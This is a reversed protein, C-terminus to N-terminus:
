ASINLLEESPMSFEDTSYMAEVREEVTAVHSEASHHSGCVACNGATKRLEQSSGDDEKDTVEGNKAVTLSETEANEVTERALEARAQTEMAAAQVAVARDQASPNAPALAARRIQQAKQVTAQANGALASTDIQVEGGVAYLQGDPGRQFNFSPGGLALSGAAAAHAQEHARVERDRARLERLQQIEAQELKNEATALRSSLHSHSVKSEENDGKDSYKVPTDAAQEGPKVVASSTGGPLASLTNQSHNHISHGSILM